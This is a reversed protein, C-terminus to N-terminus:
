FFIFISLIAHLMYHEVVINNLKTYISDNNSTCLKCQEASVLPLIQKSTFYASAANQRQVAACICTKTCSSHVWKHFQTSM